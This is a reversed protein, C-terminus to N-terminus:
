IKPEHKGKWMFFWRERKKYRAGTKECFFIMDEDTLNRKHSKVHLGDIPTSAMWNRCVRNLEYIAKVVDSGKPLHEIVEILTGCEISKDPFPLKCCDGLIFEGKWGNARLLNEAVPHVDLARTANILVPECGASGISIIDKYHKCFDKVMGYRAPSGGAKAYKTCGRITHEQEQLYAASMDM